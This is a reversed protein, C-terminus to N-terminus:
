KPQDMIATIAKLYGLGDLAQELHAIRNRLQEIEESAERLQIRRINGQKIEDAVACVYCWTGSWGFERTSLVSQWGCSCDDPHQAEYRYIGSLRDRRQRAATEQIDDWRYKENNNM